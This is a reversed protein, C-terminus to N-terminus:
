GSNVKEGCLFWIKSNLWTEFFTKWEDSKAFEEFESIAETSDLFKKVLRFKKPFGDPKNKAIEVKQKKYENGLKKSSVDSNVNTFEEHIFKRKIDLKLWIRDEIDSNNRIINDIIKLNEICNKYTVRHPEISNEYVSKIVTFPLFNEIKDGPTLDVLGIIGEGSVEEFKNLLDTGVKKTNVYFDQDAVALCIKGQLVLDAFIADMGSGGGNYRLSNLPSLGIREAELDFLMSLFQGDHLSNETLLITQELTMGDIFNKHSVVWNCGDRKISEKGGIKIIMKCKARDVQDGSEAIKEKIYGFQERYNKSLNVNKGDIVWLALDEKMFVRHYGLTSARGLETFLTSIDDEQVSELESPSIAVDIIM